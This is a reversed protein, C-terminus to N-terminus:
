VWSGRLCPLGRMPGCVASRVCRSRGVCAPVVRGRGGLQSVGIGCLGGWPVGPGEGCRDWVARPSSFVLPVVSLGRPAAKCRRPILSLCGVVWDFGSVMGGGWFPSALVCGLAVVGCRVGGGVRVCKM